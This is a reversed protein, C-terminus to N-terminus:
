RLSFKLEVTAWAAVAQGLRMSPKFTWQKVAMVAQQDLGPELSHTIRVQAPDVTGDALVVIDMVVIGQIKARMADVTYNPRVDHILKLESVGGRGPEYVDGGPGEGPGAGPGRGTGVGPGSGRGPSADGFPALVGPVIEVDRTAILPVSATAPSEANSITNPANTNVPRTEPMRAPRPRMVAPADGEGGGISGTFVFKTRDSVQVRAIEIQSPRTVAVILLLFVLAHAAMSIGAAPVDTRTM